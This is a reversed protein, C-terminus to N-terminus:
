FGYGFHIGLSLHYDNPDYAFEISPGIHFSEFEIEYTTEFHFALLSKPNNDEYTIGPSLTFSLNDIPMYAFVLGYTNHKPSLVIREYSVGLGFKTNSIFRTYHVHVAYTLVNEKIFYAPSIAIGLENESHSHRDNYKVSDKTTNPYLNYSILISLIISLLQIKIM